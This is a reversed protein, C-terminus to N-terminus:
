KLAQQYFNLDLANLELIYNNDELTLQYNPTMRGPKINVRSFSIEALGGFVYAQVSIFSDRKQEDSFHGGKGRRVPV